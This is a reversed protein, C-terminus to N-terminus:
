GDAKASVVPKCGLMQTLALGKKLGWSTAKMACGAQLYGRWHYLGLEM